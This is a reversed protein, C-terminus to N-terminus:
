FNACECIDLILKKIIVNNNINSNSKFRIELEYTEKLMNNIKASNWLKAQNVFANKDKWFIPPRLNKIKEELSNSGKINNIEKLKNLRQNIVNLYYVGKDPEILTDNLLRNTTIKNGILAADKLLNFDENSTINLLDQVKYINTKNTELLLLDPILDTKEKDPKIIIGEALYISKDDFIKLLGLCEEIEDFILICKTM